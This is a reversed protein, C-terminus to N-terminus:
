ENAWTERTAAPAMTVLREFPAITTRAVAAIPSPASSPHTEFLLRFAALGKFFRSRALRISRGVRVKAFAALHM